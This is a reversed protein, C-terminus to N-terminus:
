VTRSLWAVCGVVLLVVAAAAAAIWFNRWRSRKVVPHSTAAEDVGVRVPTPPTDTTTHALTTIETLGIPEQREDIRTFLDRTQTYLDVPM